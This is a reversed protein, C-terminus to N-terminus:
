QVAVNCVKYNKAYDYYVTTQQLIESCAAASTETSLYLYQFLQNSLASYNIQILLPLEVTRIRPLM